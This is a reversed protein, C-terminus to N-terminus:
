GKVDLVVYYINDDDETQEPASNTVAVEEIDWHDPDIQDISPDFCTMKKIKEISLSRLKWRANRELTYRDHIGIAGILTIQYMNTGDSLDYGHDVLFTFIKQYTVIDISRLEDCLFELAGMDGVDIISELYDQFGDYEEEVYPNTLKKFPEPTVDLKKFKLKKTNKNYWTDELCASKASDCVKRIFHLNHM